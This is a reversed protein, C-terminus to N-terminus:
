LSDKHKIYALNAEEPTNFYGLHKSNFAAKWKGNYPSVGLYGSTNNKGISKNCMNISSDAERLNNLSNNETNRDIHDIIDVPWEQFCYFWALRHEAYAVSNIEIYRYGTRHLYGARQGAAKPGRSIKYTFIGTEQCYNLTETLKEYSLALEKQRNIKM